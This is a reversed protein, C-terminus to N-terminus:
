RNEWQFFKALTTTAIIFAIPAKSSVDHWRAQGHRAGIPVHLHDEPKVVVSEYGKDERWEPRTLSQGGVKNKDSRDRKAAFRGAKYEESGLL